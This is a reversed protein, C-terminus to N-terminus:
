PSCNVSVNFWGGHEANMASPEDIVIARRDIRRYRRDTVATIV